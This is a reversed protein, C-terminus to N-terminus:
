VAAEEYLGSMDTFSKILRNVRRTPSPNDGGYRVYDGCSVENLARIAVAKRRRTRLLVKKIVALSDDNIYGLNRTAANLHKVDRKELLRFGTNKVNKVNKDKRIKM